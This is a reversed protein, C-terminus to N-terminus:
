ESRVRELGEAFIDVLADITREAPPSYYALMGASRFTAFGHIASSIVRHWHTAKEDDDLYTRLVAHLPERFSNIGDIIEVDEPAPVYRFAELLGPHELDFRVSERIYAGLADRGALGMMARTVRPAVLRSRYLHLERHLGDVGDVHAYLSQPQIGLAKGLRAFTLNSLGEQDAIAAAMSIVADKSLGVRKAM